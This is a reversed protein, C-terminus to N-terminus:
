FSRTLFGCCVTSTSRRSRVYAQWRIQAETLDSHDECCHSTGGTPLSCTDTQKCWEWKKNFLLVIEFHRHNSRSICLPITAASLVQITSWRSTCGCRCAWACPACRRAGAVAPLDARAAVWHSHKNAVRCSSTTTYSRVRM